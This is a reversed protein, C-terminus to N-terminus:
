YFDAISFILFFFPMYYGLTPVAHVTLSHNNSLNIQLLLITLGYLDQKHAGFKPLEQALYGLVEGSILREGEVECYEEVMFPDYLWKLLTSKGNGEEGILAVKEKEGLVFSFDELLTHLDKKHYITLNKIQLM